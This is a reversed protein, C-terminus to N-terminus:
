VQGPRLGMRGCLTEGPALIRVGTDPVGRAMLNFGDNVHSVPEVCFFDEGPPVYVVLHGFLPDAEVILALGSEPWRIVARGNWVGFCNDLDLGALPRPQTFNWESPLPVREQPLKRADSLWVHGLGAELTVDPTRIFYPHLGLGAPMAAAGRNTVEITVTLGDTGLAFHQRARYAFPTGPLRHEFALTADDEAVEAVSWPHQWGHGHIAHPEPPFNRELQYERGELEFRADAIRNSFPVLPFCAAERPDGTAFFAPGAPRLLNLGHYRFRTISGGCRPCFALEFAGHRLRFQEQGAM